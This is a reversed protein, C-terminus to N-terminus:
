TDDQTSNSLLYLYSHWRLSNVENNDGEDEDLIEEGNDDLVNWPPPYSKLEFEEDAKDELEEPGRIKSFLNKFRHVKGVKELTYLPHFTFKGNGGATRWMGNTAFEQWKGSVSGGVENLSLGVAAEAGRSASETLLLAYMPCAMLSTVLLKGELAKAVKSHLNDKKEIIWEVPKHLVVVAGRRNDFIWRGKVTCNAFEPLGEVQMNFNADMRRGGRSVVVLNDEPSCQKLPHHSSVDLDIFNDDYINGESQFIGTEKNMTGYEGVRVVNRNPALNGYWISANRILDAFLRSNRDTTM